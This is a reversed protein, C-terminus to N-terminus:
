PLTKIGRYRHLVDNRIGSYRRAVYRRHEPYCHQTYKCTPLLTKSLCVMEMNLALTSIFAAHEESVNDVANSNPRDVDVDEGDFITCPLV